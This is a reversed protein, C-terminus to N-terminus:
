SKFHSSLADLDATNIVIAGHTTKYPFPIPNCGGKFGITALNIAVDCRKCIIKGDKEYYGADGCNDCADLGVGYAGGNKKIIIFRMVTGDKAKYQFRHLHGDSVESFKITAVDHSLSYSEPPSLVPQKNTQAVGYTLAVTVGIAVIVTWAASLMARRRLATRRRSDAPNRAVAPIRFGAVVSAIAPVIFVWVQAIILWSANNILWVLVHFSLGQLMIDGVSLMLTVLSTLHQIVILAILMLAAVTFWLPTATLRISRIICAVIISAAVGLIFGLARLLMESTFVPDGPEIFITLELIVDPLARFVTLAIAIGAVANGIHLWVAHHAWDRTLGRARVIVMILAIDAIVCCVLTPYNIFTRQIIVATARLAAFVVAGLIDVVLGICRWHASLPRKRGEGVSLLVNLCMVLLAPGLTGPMVTVFQELM